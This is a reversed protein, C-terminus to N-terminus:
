VARSFFLAIDGNPYYCEYYGCFQFGHKQAFCIAPHNKTQAEIMIQGLNQASAWRTASQLLMTGFGQRRYRHGVVLNSIWLLNQWPHSRADIFGTVEDKMDRAILFCGDQQWHELLEDPSRPYKVRMSRPLRVTDFRIDTTRGTKQTQM